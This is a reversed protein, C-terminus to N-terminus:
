AQATDMIAEMYRPESLIAVASMTGGSGTGTGIQLTAYRYQTGAPNLDAADFEILLLKGAAINAATMTLSALAAVSAVTGFVDSTASGVAASGYRYDFRCLATKTGASAGGYVGITDDTAVSSDGWIIVCAHNYKSMDISDTDFGANWNGDITLGLIGHSESFRNKAM